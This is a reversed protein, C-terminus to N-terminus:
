QKIKYDGKSHPLRKMRYFRSDRYLSINNKYSDLNYNMMTFFNLKEELKKKRSIMNFYFIKSKYINIDFVKRM